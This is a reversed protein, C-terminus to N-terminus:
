RGKPVLAEAAAELNVRGAGLTEITRGAAAPLWGPLGAEVIVADPRTALVRDALARQWDYRGADRLAVVVPRGDLSPLEEGAVIALVETRADRARVADGLRFPVHGAAMGPPPTLELVLPAEGVAVEGRVRLVRRALDGGAAAAELPQRSRSGLAEVRDAAGALREESLRGERVAEEVAAVIAEVADEHLDHGVCLADAGAALARVAGDEVGVTAALGQMELADSVIVGDFGLEDRLVGLVTRSVTAPAGDLAPVVLHATMVAEVGADVAAAFPVLERERLTAPDVEVRPLAHHSDVSTDGHGPFHKACAAVGGEQLGAVFGAVHRAVLRPDSGFSRVGIVPNRPNSNVDAVPAFDLNVGAAALRAGITRAVARTAEVDDLAGLALSGPSCSGTRADLRSVDGGEEDIALVAQPRASRLQASLAALGEDSSVNDAFYTVGGLGEELLRLVWVPAEPGPFSPLLVGLALSRLTM